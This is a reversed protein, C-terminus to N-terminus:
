GNYSGWLSLQQPKNGNAEIVEWHSLPLFYQVGFGRDLTGKHRDFHEVSIRYRTDIEKDWIVICTAFPKVQEDFADAQIAWAPPQRLRHKSGVVSKHFVRDAIWGIVTDGLKVVHEEKGTM